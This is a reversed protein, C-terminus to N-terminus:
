VLKFNRIMETISPKLKGSNGENQFSGLADCHDIATDEDTFNKERTDNHVCHKPPREHGV